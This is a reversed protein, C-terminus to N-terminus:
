NQTDGSQHELWEKTLSDAPIFTEIALESAAVDLPTGFTAVTSFFRLDVHDVKLHLTLAFSPDAPSPEEEPGDTWGLVEQLLHDFDASPAAAAHRRVQRLLHSRWEDLNVIYRSLGRPHLSVRVVNVPPALLDRDVLRLLADLPRNATVVDFASDLVL